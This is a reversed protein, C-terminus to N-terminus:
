TLGNWGKRTHPFHWCFTLENRWHKNNFINAANHQCKRQCKGENRLCCVLVTHLMLSVRHRYTPYINIAAGAVVGQSICCKQRSCEGFRFATSKMLNMFFWPYRLCKFHYVLSHETFEISTHLQIFVFLDQFYILLNCLRLLILM